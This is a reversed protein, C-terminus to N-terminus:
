SNCHEAIDDVMARYEGHFDLKRTQIEFRVAERDAVRIEATGLYNSVRFSGEPPKGQLTWGSWAAKRRASGGKLTSAIDAQALEGAGEGVLMWQYSVNEFLV